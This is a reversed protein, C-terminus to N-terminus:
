YGGFFSRSRMARNYNQLMGEVQNGRANQRVAQGFAERGAAQERAPYQYLGSLQQGARAAGERRMKQKKAALGAYAQGLARAPRGSAARATSEPSYYGMRAGRGSIRSMASRFSNGIQQREQAEEAASM